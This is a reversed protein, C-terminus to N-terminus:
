RSPGVKWTATITAVVVGESNEIESEVEVEGELFEPPVEFRSVATLRGRAKKLYKVRIETLISRRDEPLSLTLAMGTCVEGLNALAIAHVSNLHNRVRRRDAMAIRVHGRELQLVEPTVTSTYPICLGLIKSVLLRGFPLPSLRGWVKRLTASPRNLDIFM